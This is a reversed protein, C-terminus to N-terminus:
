EAAISRTAPVEGLIAQWALDCNENTSSIRIKDTHVVLMPIWIPNAHQLVAERYHEDKPLADRECDLLHWNVRALNIAMRAFPMGCRVAQVYARAIIMPGTGRLLLDGGSKERLGGTTVAPPHQSRAENLANLSPIVKVLECFFEELGATKVDLAHDGEHHEDIHAVCSRIASMSWIRRSQASLNVNSATADVYETLFPVSEVLRRARANRGDRIDYTNLLSKAIAKSKGCDAFDQHANNRNAEFVVTVAVSNHRLTTKQEETVKNGGMISGLETKRHNGDTTDLKAGAPLLFMAPWSVSSEDGTELVTLISEPDDDTLGVGYNFTFSPVIFMDGQVATSMFYERVHKAHGREIPRNSHQIVETLRDAKKAPDSKSVKLMLDLPMATTFQLRNGQLFATGFFTNGGYGGMTLRGVEKWLDEFDRVNKIRVWKHVDIGRTKLIDSLM